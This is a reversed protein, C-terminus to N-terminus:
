ESLCYMFTRKSIEDSLELGFQYVTEERDGRNIAEDFLLLATRYTDTGYPYGDKKRQMHIQEQHIFWQRRTLMEERVGAIASTVADKPGYYGQIWGFIMSALALYIASSKKM